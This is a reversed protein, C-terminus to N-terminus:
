GRRGIPARSRPPQTPRAERWHTPGHGRSEDWTFAGKEHVWMGSHAGVLPNTFAADWKMRFPGDGDALVEIVTGDRPATEIPRYDSM